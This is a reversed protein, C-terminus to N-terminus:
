RYLRYIGYMFQPKFASFLGSVYGIAIQEIIENFRQGNMPLPLFTKNSKVITVSEVIDNFKNQVDISLPKAWQRQNLPNSILSGFIESILIAFGDLTNTSMDGYVLIKAYFQRKKNLVNKTQQQKHQEMKKKANCIDM